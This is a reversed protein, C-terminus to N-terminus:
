YLPRLIKINKLMDFKNTGKSTKIKCKKMKKSKRAKKVKKYQMRNM